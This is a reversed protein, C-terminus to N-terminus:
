REKWVENDPTAITFRADQGNGIATVARITGIGTILGTFM